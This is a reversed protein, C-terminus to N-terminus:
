MMGETSSLDTASATALATASSARSCPMARMQFSFMIHVSHSQALGADGDILVTEAGEGDLSHAPFLGGFEEGHGQVAAHGEEVGGPEVGVALLLDAVGERM